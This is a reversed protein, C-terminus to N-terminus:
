AKTTEPEFIESETLGTIKTIAVINKLTAFKENDNRLWRHLTPYAIGIEKALDMKVNDNKIAERFKQTVAFM